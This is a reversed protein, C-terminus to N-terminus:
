EDTDKMISEDEKKKEQKRQKQNTKKKKGYKYQRQKRKRNHLIFPPDEMGDVHHINMWHDKRDKYSDFKEKCDSDLCLYLDPRKKALAALFFSSHAEESHLSLLHDSFFKRKCEGCVYERTVDKEKIKTIEPEYEVEKHENEETEEELNRKFSPLDSMVFCNNLFNIFDINFNYYNHFTITRYIFIVNM